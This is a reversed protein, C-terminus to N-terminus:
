DILLPLVKLLFSHLSSDNNSSFNDQETLRLFQTIVARLEDPKQLDTKVLKIDPRPDLITGPKDCIVPELVCGDSDYFRYEGALVDPKEVAAEALDPKLYCFVESGEVVFIPPSPLTSSSSSM